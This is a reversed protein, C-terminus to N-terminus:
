YGYYIASVCSYRVNNFPDRVRTYDGNVYEFVYYVAVFLVRRFLDYGSWWKYGPKIGTNVVDSFPGAKQLLVILIYIYHHVM